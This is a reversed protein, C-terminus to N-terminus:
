QFIDINWGSGAMWPAQKAKVAAQISVVIQMSAEIQFTRRRLCGFRTGLCPLCVHFYCLILQYAAIALVPLARSILTLLPAGDDFGRGPSIALAKLLDLRGVAAASM